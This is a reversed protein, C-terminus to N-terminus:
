CDKIEGSSLNFPGYYVDGNCIDIDSVSTLICFETNTKKERNDIFRLRYWM